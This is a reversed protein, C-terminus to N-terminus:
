PYQLLNILKSERSGSRSRHNSESGSRHNREYEHGSNKRIHRGHSRSAHSSSSRLSAYEAASTIHAEERTPSGESRILEAGVEGRRHRYQDDRDLNDHPRGPSLLELTVGSRALARPHNHNFRRFNLEHQPLQTRVSGNYNGALRGETHKAPDDSFHHDGSTYGQHASEGRSGISGSPSHLDASRLPITDQRLAERLEARKKQLEDEM